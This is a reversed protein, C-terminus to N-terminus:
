TNSFAYNLMSIKLNESYTGLTTTIDGVRIGADYLGKAIEEKNTDYDIDSNIEKFKTEILQEISARKDVIYDYLDNCKQIAVTGDSFTTNTYASAPIGLTTPNIHEIIDQNPKVFYDLGVDPIYSTSM